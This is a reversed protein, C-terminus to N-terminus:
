SHQAVLTYRKVNLCQAGGGITDLLVLNYTDRNASSYEGGVFLDKQKDFVGSKKMKRNFSEVSATITFKKKNWKMISRLAFVTQKKGDITSFHKDM